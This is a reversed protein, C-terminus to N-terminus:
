SYNFAISCSYNHSVATTNRTMRDTSGKMLASASPGGSGTETEGYAYRWSCVVPLSGVPECVSDCEYVRAKMYVHPLTLPCVCLRVPRRSIVHINVCVCVCLIACACWRVTFVSRFMRWTKRQTVNMVKKDYDKKPRKGGNFVIFPIVICLHLICYWTLLTLQKKKLWEISYLLVTHCISLM